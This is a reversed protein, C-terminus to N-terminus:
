TRETRAKSYVSQVTSQVGLPISACCILRYVHMSLPFLGMELEGDSLLYVIPGNMFVYQFYISLLESSYPSLLKPGITYFNLVVCSRRIYLNRWYCACHIYLKMPRSTECIANFCILNSGTKLAKEQV